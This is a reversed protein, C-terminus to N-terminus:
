RRQRHSLCGIAGASSPVAGARRLRGFGRGGGVTATGDLGLRDAARRVLLGDGLPDAAALLLLRRSEGPLQMVRRVFSEEIHGAM